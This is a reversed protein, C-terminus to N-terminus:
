VITHYPWKRLISNVCLLLPVTPLLMKQTTWALAIYCPGAPLDHTAGGHLPNSYRWWLGRLRLLRCFPFVTGPLEVPGGQEQHIYICSGPGGPQPFKLDSVTFCPWSDQPIRVWSHSHQCPGAVITFSLSMKEDSPAGCWCVQLQRVTIFILDQTGPLHKVGLCVPHSVMPRLM